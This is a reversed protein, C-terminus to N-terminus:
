YIMREVGRHSRSIQLKTRNMKIPNMNFASKLEEGGGGWAGVHTNWTIFVLYSFGQLMSRITLTSNGWPVCRNRNIECISDFMQSQIRFKHNIIMTRNAENEVVYDYGFVILFEAAIKERLSLKIIMLCNDLFHYFFIFFSMSRSRPEGDWCDDLLESRLHPPVGCPGEYIPAALIKKNDLYSSSEKNVCACTNCLQIVFSAYIGSEM